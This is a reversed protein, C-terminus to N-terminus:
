GRLRVEQAIASVFDFLQTFLVYLIYGTLVFLGMTFLTILVNRVTESFTYNHVEKVMIFLMIGMWVYMLNLSFTHLFVENLTLLNSLLAIPLAFLAYPFLSYATGIIVDRVRGEGDSITSVLYNALNWLILLGGTIVIENEVWIDTTSVYPNFVFATVYLTAVRVVIVWFYILFAFKLSGRFNNKIYYFSDAPQKIFRFMFVFDDILKYRTLNRFWNRLPDTWHQRQDVRKFVQLVISLGFLGMLASSLYRQLVVNRLEWFAQSYGDRDEAYKYNDLASPYNGAKFYADAIGQYAMLLSGNFNLIDEFYPMAEAYYGEIYLRVGEHVERAFSTTEYVVLANKDKDLVYIFEGFRAVATPNKLTGLRQDGNDKAGFFFLMTGNLDYEAIFGDADVALVLGDTSTDIDRFTSSDYTDPFINKGSITYRRISEGENTGATVTFVLSQDDITLNSPSAAENKIFQALQEDTLFLRQLIMKLSMTASNAGFYGIFDGNTNMQVIGNVSGESIIYLNQRADVAIKRPLFERNKGFLPEDPRGFSNIVTGDAAFIYIMDQKADAVYITGAEDVFLGTPGQLEEDGYITEVEFNANLQVIRGNGTDAVYIVGDDTIFMDEASAIDLDIEAYPTYADQTRVLWGRPGISWSTYPADAQTPVATALVIGIIFILFATKKM